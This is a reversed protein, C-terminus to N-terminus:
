NDRHGRVGHPGITFLRHGGARTSIDGLWEIRIRKLSVFRAPPRLPIQSEFNGSFAILHRAKAREDM